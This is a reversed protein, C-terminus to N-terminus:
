AAVTKRVEQAVETARDSFPKVTDRLATARIEGLDRLGSSLREAAQRAHTQEIELADQVSKAQLVSLTAATRSQFLDGMMRLFANASQIEGEIAVTGADRVDETVRTATQCFKEGTDKMWSEVQKLSETATKSEFDTKKTKATM